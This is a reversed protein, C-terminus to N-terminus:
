LSRARRHQSLGVHGQLEEPWLEGEIVQTAPRAGLWVFAADTHKNDYEIDM